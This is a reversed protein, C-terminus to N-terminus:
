DHPYQWQMTSFKSQSLNTEKPDSNMKTHESTILNSFTNNKELWRCFIIYRKLHLLVLISYCSCHLAKLSLNNICAAEDKIQQSKLIM